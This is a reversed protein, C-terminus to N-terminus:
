SAIQWITTASVNDLPFLPISSPIQDSKVEFLEKISDEM